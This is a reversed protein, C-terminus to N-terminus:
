ARGATLTRAVPRGIVRVSITGAGPRCVQQVARGKANWGAGNLFRSISRPTGLLLNKRHGLVVGLKELDSETLDSHDIAVAEGYQGLGLGELWQVIPHM